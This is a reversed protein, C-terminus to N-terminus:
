EGKEVKAKIVQALQTAPTNLLTALQTAPMNIVGLLQALVVERPPLDAIALVGEASLASKDLIGGKIVPREFEAKFNKLVKAAASIDAPGYAVASQGHLLDGLDPLGENGLARRLFTNKVVHIESKAEALRNRLESFQSVTIGTYDVIIVYPSSQIWARIDDIIAAKEQRM